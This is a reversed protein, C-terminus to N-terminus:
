VSAKFHAKITVAKDGITFKDGVIEVDGSVVEWEDFEYDSAPTAALTVETGYTGTAPSASGTGHGDNTVTVSVTATNDSIDPQAARDYLPRLEINLTRLVAAMAQTVPKYATEGSDYYLVAGDIFHGAAYVKAAVARTASGDTDTEKALIVLDEGAAINASAARSYIDSSSKRYLVAGAPVKGIGPEVSVAIADTYVNDALLYSPEYADHVTFLQEM